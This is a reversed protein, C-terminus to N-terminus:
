DSRTENPQWRPDSTPAPFRRLATWLEHASETTVAALFGDPMGAEAYLHRLALADRESVAALGAYAAWMDVTEAHFFFDYPSSALDNFPDPTPQIEACAALTAAVQSLPM